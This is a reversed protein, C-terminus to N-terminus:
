ERKRASLLGLGHRRNVVVDNIVLVGGGSSPGINVRCDDSSVSSTRGYINPFLWINRAEKYTTEGWVAETITPIYETACLFEQQEIWYEEASNSIIGKRLMLWEASIKDRILLFERICQNGGSFLKPKFNYIRLLPIENENPGAILIFNGRIEEMIEKSPLSTIYHRLFSKGYKINRVEAILEPSIFDDGLIHKALAYGQKPIIVAPAEPLKPKVKFDPCGAKLFKALNSRAEKDDIPTQYSNWDVVGEEGMVRFFKAAKGLASSTELTAVKEKM